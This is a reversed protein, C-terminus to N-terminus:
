TARSGSGSHKGHSTLCTKGPSGLVVIRYLCKSEMDLHNDSGTPKINHDIREKGEADDETHSNRIRTQCAFCTTAQLRFRM